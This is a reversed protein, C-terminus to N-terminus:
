KYHFDLTKAKDILKEQENYVDSTSLQIENISSNEIIFGINGKKREGPNLVGNLDELYIDKEWTIMEDTNTQIFAIPSFKKQKNSQNVIEVFFKVFIFQEDHTYTHYFDILSYAPRYDIIKADKVTLKISDIQISKPEEDLAKLTAEGKRDRYFDGVAILSTDDIVQPNQIYADTSVPIVHVNQMSTEIKEVEQITNVETEKNSNCGALLLFAFSYMFFRKM